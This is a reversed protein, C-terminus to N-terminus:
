PLWTPLDCKTIPNGEPDLTNTDQLFKLIKAPQDVATTGPIGDWFRNFTQKANPMSFWPRPSTVDAGCVYRAISASRNAFGTYTDFTSWGQLLATHCMRCSPKVVDLYLAEHGLWGTPVFAENQQGSTKYWGDILEVTSTNPHTASVLQNLNYFSAEQDARRLGAVDPFAYNDLDFPLFQSALDPGRPFATYHAGYGSGGHCAVCAGPMFKEGRGDLNVSLLLNGAPGFTLFKVFPDGGSYPTGTDSNTGPAYEFAVCAVMDAGSLVNNVTLENGHPYNCVYTAVDTGQQNNPRVGPRSLMHMDRELNLDALNAYKASVENSGPSGFGWSAKWAAFTLQAGGPVGGADCTQVVGLNRYYECADVRTDQSTGVGQSYTLFHSAAPAHDAPWFGRFFFGVPLWVHFPAAPAPPGDSSLPLQAVQYAGRGDSVLVYLFHLGKSNPLTWLVQTGVTSNLNGSTVGWAYQLADGDPDTASVSVNVTSGPAVTTVLHGNFTPVLSNVVPTRNPLTIDAQSAIIEAPTLERDLVLSGCTVRLKIVPQTLDASIAYAGLDSMGGTIGLPAGQNDLQEITPLQDISFFPIAYSCLSRDSFLVTGHIAAPQTQATALYISAFTFLIALAVFASGKKIYSRGTPAMPAEQQKM